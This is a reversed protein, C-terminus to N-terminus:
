GQKRGLGVEKFSSDDILILLLLGWMTNADFSSTYASRQPSAHYIIPIHLVQQQVM